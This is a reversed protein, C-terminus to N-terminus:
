VPLALTEAGSGDHRLGTAGLAHRFQCLTFAVIGLLLLFDRGSLALRDLEMYPLKGTLVTSLRAQCSQALDPYYFGAIENM